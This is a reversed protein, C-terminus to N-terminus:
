HTFLMIHVLILFVALLVYCAYSFAHLQLNCQPNHLFLACIQPALLLLSCYLYTFVVSGRVLSIDDKKRLLVTLNKDGM